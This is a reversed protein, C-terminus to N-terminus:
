KLAIDFPVTTPPLCQQNTCVMFEVTGRLNTKASAKLKVTQVFSVEGEFYKVDIGFVEEHKMVLEGNEKAKGEITVLPNKTFTIKTPLPGGDPTTQSYIHWPNDVSAKLTVEYTNNTVKKASFNWQVPTQASALNALTLILVPIFFIRM